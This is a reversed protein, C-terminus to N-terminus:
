HRRRPQPSSHRRRRLRRRASREPMAARQAGPSAVARQPRPHRRPVPHRRCGRRHRRRRRSRRSRRCHVIALEAPTAAPRGAAERWTGVSARAPAGRLDPATLARGAGWPRETATSGAACRTAAAATAADVSTAAAATARRVGHAVERGSTPTAATGRKRRGAAHDRGVGKPEGGCYRDRVGCGERRDAVRRQRDDGSRRRRTLRQM